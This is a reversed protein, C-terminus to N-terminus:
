ASSPMRSRTRDRPSPSTYLLCVYSKSTLQNDDTENGAVNPHVHVTHVSSGLRIENIASPAADHGIAVAGTHLARANRGVAIGDETDADASVGVAITNVGGASADRGIAVAGEAYSKSTLQNDDTETGAVNPHVHVTHASSGLRIENNASPAADHGIAVAGTSDRICM